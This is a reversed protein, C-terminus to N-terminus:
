SCMWTQFLIQFCIFFSGHLVLMAPINMIIFKLLFHYEGHFILIRSSGFKVLRRKEKERRRLWNERHLSICDDDWTRFEMKFNRKSCFFFQFNKVSLQILTPFGSPSTVLAYLPRQSISWIKTHVCCFGGANWSIMMAESRWAHSIRLWVSVISNLKSIYNLESWSVTNCEVM